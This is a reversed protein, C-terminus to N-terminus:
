AKTVSEKISKRMARSMRALLSKKRLRYTGFFFGLAPTGPHDTGEFLGKNKHPRTGFELLRVYWGQRDGAHVTAALGQAGLIGKAESRDGGSLTAVEPANGWSWGVSRQLAGTRGKPAVRRIADSLEEANEKIAQSMAKRPGDRMAALRRKLRDVNQVKAM